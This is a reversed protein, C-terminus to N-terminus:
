VGSEAVDSQASPFPVGVQLGDLRFTLTLVRGGTLQMGVVGSICNLTFQAKLDESCINYGSRSGCVGVNIM